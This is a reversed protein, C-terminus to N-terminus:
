NDLRLSQPYISRLGRLRPPDAHHSRSHRPTAIPRATLSSNARRRARDVLAGPGQCQPPGISMHQPQQLRRGSPYHGPSCAIRSSIIVVITPGGGLLSSHPWRKAWSGRHDGDCAGLRGFGGPVARGTVTQRFTLQPTRHRAPHRESSLGPRRIGAVGGIVPLRREPHRHPSETRM